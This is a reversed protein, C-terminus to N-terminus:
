PPSCFPLPLFPLLFVFTPAFPSSLLSFQVLPLSCCPLALPLSAPLSSLPCFCVSCSIFCSVVSLFSVIPCRVPSPGFAFHISPSVVSSVVLTYTPVANNTWFFFFASGLPRHNCSSLCSSCCRSVLIPLRSPPLVSSPILFHPLFSFPPPSTFQLPPHAGAAVFHISSSSHPLVLSIM